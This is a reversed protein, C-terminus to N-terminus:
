RGNIHKFLTPNRATWWRASALQTGAMLESLVVFPSGGEEAFDGPEEVLL